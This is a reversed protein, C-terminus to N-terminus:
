PIKVDAVIFCLTWEVFYRMANMDLPYIKALCFTGETTEIIFDLRPIM